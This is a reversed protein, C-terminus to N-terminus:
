EPGTESAVWRTTAELKPFDVPETLHAVFGEERSKLVDEDIGIGTPSCGEVPRLSRPRQM